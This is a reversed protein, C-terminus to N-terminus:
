SEELPSGDCLKADLPVPATSARSVGINAPLSLRGDHSQSRLTLTYDAPSTNLEVIVCFTGDLPQVSATAPNGAGEVIVRAANAAVGRIALKRFPYSEPVAQLSPAPLETPPTDSTIQDNGKPLEVSPPGCAVAVSALAVLILTRM